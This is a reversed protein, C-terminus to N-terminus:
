PEAEDRAHRLLAVATSVNLTELASSPALCFHARMGWARFERSAVERDDIIVVHTHRPDSRIRLLTEDIADHDGELVQVFHSPTYLLLGTLSVRLNRQAAAEAIAQADAFRV